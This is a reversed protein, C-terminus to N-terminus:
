RRAGQGRVLEHVQGAALDGFVESTGDVWTVTVDGASEHEGLGVHVRLDNAACYSFASRVRRSLTRDGVRLSVVAGVM